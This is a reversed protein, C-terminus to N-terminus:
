SEGENSLIIDVHVGSAIDLKVLADLTSDTPDHIDILRKYIKIEFQERSEKDIHPSKLVTMRSNKSPLPFPGSVHSGTKQAARIIMNTAHDLLSHDFSKLKMRVNKKNIM